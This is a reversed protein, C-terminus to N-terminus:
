DQYAELIMEFVDEGVNNEAFELIAEVFNDGGDSLADFEPHKLLLAASAQYFLMSDEPDLSNFLIEDMFGSFDEPVHETDVSVHFQSLLNQFEAAFNETGIVDQLEFMIDMPGDAFIDEEVTSETVYLLTGLTAADREEIAEKLMTKFENRANM